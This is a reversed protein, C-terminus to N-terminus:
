VAQEWRFLCLRFPSYAALEQVVVNSCRVLHPSLRMQLSLSPSNCTAKKRNRIPTQSPPTASSEESQTLVAKGLAVIPSHPQYNDENGGSEVSDEDDSQSDDSESSDTDVSAEEDATGKPVVAVAQVISNNHSEDTRPTTAAIFEESALDHQFFNVTKTNAVSSAALQKAEQYQTRMEELQRQVEDRESRSEKLAQQFQQRAVLLKQREAAIERTHSECITRFDADNKQQELLAAQLEAVTSDLESGACDLEAVHKRLEQNDATMRAGEEQLNQVCAQLKQQEACHEISASQAEAIEEAASTLTKTLQSASAKRKAVEVELQRQYQQRCQDLALSSEEVQVRLAEKADLLESAVIEGKAKSQSHLEQLAHHAQHLTTLEAAATTLVKKYETLDHTRRQQELRLEEMVGANLQELHDVQATLDCHQSTLSTNKQLYETAKAEADSLLSRLHMQEKRSKEISSENERNTRELADITAQAEGLQQESTSLSKKVQAASSFLSEMTAQTCELQKHLQACSHQSSQLEESLREKEVRLTECVAHAAHMEKASAALKQEFEHRDATRNQKESRFKQELDQRLMGEQKMQESLNEMAANHEDLDSKQSTIEGVLSQNQEKLVATAAKLEAVNDNLEVIQAGRLESRHQEAALDEMLSSSVTARLWQEQERVREYDFKGSEVQDQLEVIKKDASIKAKLSSEKFRTLKIEAQKLQQMYEDMEANMTAKEEAKETLLLKTKTRLVATAAANAACEQRHQVEVEAAVAELAAIQEVFATIAEEQEAKTKAAASLEQLLSENVKHLKHNKARLRKARDYMETMKETLKTSDSSKHSTHKEDTSETDCNRKWVCKLTIEPSTSEDSAHATASGNIDISQPLHLTRAIPKTASSNTSLASRQLPTSPASQQLPGDSSMCSHLMNEVQREFHALQAAELEESARCELAATQLQSIEVELASVKQEMGSNLEQLASNLQSLRQVEISEASHADKTVQMETSLMEMQRAHAKRELNAMCTAHQIKADWEQRQQRSKAEFERKAADHKTRWEDVMQKLKEAHVTATAAITRVEGIESNLQNRETEAHQLEAGLSSRAAKLQSEAIESLEQIQRCETRASQVEDQLAANDSLSQELEQSISMQRQQMAHMTSAAACLRALANEKEAQIIQFTAKAQDKSQISADITATAKLLDQQVLSCQQGLTSQLMSMNQLQEQLGGCQKRLQNNETLTSSLQTQLQKSRSEAAKSMNESICAQEVATRLEARAIKVEHVAETCLKRLAVSSEERQKDKQETEQGLKALNQQATEIEAELSVIRATEAFLRKQHSDSSAKWGGAAAKVKLLKHQLCFMDDEHQTREVELSRRLVKAEHIARDLSLRLHLNSSHEEIARVQLESYRQASNALEVAHQEQVQQVVDFWMEADAEAKRELASYQMKTTHVFSQHKLLNHLAEHNRQSQAIAHEHKNKALETQAAQLEHKLHDRLTQSEHLQDITQNHLAGLTQNKAALDKLHSQLSSNDSRLRQMEDEAAKNQAKRKADQQLIRKELLKVRSSARELEHSQDKVRQAHNTVNDESPKPRLQEQLLQRQLDYLEGQLRKNEQRVRCADSKTRANEEELSHVRAQEINTMMVTEDFRILSHNQLLDGVHRVKNRALKGQLARAFTKFM